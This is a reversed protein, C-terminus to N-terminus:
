GKLIIKRIIAGKREKLPKNDINSVKRQFYKTIRDDKFIELSVDYLDVLNGLVMLLRMEYDEFPLLIFDILWKAFHPLGEIMHNNAHINHSTATCLNPNGICNLINIVLTKSTGSHAISTLNVLTDLFPVKFRDETTRSLHCYKEFIKM